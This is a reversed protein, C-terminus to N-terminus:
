LLKDKDNFLVCLGCRVCVSEHYLRRRQRGEVEMGELRRLAGWDHDFERTWDYSETGRGPLPPWRTIGFLFMESQPSPKWACVNWEYLTQWSQRGEDFWGQPVQM